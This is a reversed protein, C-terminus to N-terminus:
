NKLGDVIIRKVIEFGHKFGLKKKGLRKRYFIPIEKIQYGLREVHYNMEIEIGFGKSKPKWNKLIEYRIIRLGTLPDNLNSFCFFNHVFALLKNGIFFQNKDSVIEFKESFRNGLVMGVKPSKELIYLMEKLYKAPYTYDADIFIVYIIHGQLHNLAQSIANGKGKGKQLIVDVGMDKAIESTKDSSNGDVVLIYPKNLENKLDDITPSIGEQENYAPIVVALTTQIM